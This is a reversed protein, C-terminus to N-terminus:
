IVSKYTWEVNYYKLKRAEGRIVAGGLFIPYFFRELMKLYNRQFHWFNFNMNFLIAMYNNYKRSKKITTYSMLATYEWNIHKMRILKLTHKGKEFTHHNKAKAKGHWKCYLCSNLCGAQSPLHFTIVNMLNVTIFEYNM